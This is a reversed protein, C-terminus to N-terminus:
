FVTIDNEFSRYNSEGHRANVEIKNWCFLGAARASLEATQELFRYSRYSSALADLNEFIFSVLTSRIREFRSFPIPEVPNLKKIM